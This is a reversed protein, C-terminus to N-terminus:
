MLKVHAQPQCRMHADLAAPAYDYRPRSLAESYVHEMVTDIRAQSYSQIRSAPLFSSSSLLCKYISRHIM